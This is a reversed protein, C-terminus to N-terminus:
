TMITVSAFNPLATQPNTAETTPPPTPTAQLPPSTFSPLSQPIVISFVPSSDIIVSIPVTLLTPTQKSPVEHHVHVDMLSVTEAETTPIDEEQVLGKDTDVPGNLRIDVDKYLQSTTYDMEEDEDGEAKDAIKTEDEDDSNNSPTKVVEEEEEEETDEKNEKSDQENNRDDEDNGWSEAESESSEEKTVDPVGLKVGTGESTVSPIIKVAGRTVDVKEKKKSLPMEPTERIVVGKALDQTSKKAPRKVRKSKGTPEKTSVFYTKYAKNEKMEHSTLSELLIARYIQTAEKASVFIKEQNKYAKNNIQYIFYEWLLEVYDVNKQHYMGWLIQARSLRLKDLGTTKGSLSRNILAAFTRWPQHMQNVVVDNLSHIEGTHGLDRLFSMIEEDTPLADFDQGMFHSGSCGFYSLIHARKLDKWSQTKRQM